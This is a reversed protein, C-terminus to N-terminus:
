MEESYDSSKKVNLAFTTGEKVCGLDYVGDFIFIGLFDVNEPIFTEIRQWKEDRRKAWFVENEDCWCLVQYEDTKALVPCFANKEHRRTLIQQNGADARSLLMLRDGDKICIEKETAFIYSIDTGEYIEGAGSQCLKGERNVYFVTEGVAFPLADSSIEDILEAKNIKTDLKQSFLKKESVFFIRVEGNKTHIFLNEAKFNESVDGMGWRSKVCRIYVVKGSDLVAAIHIGDDDCVADFDICKELLLEAKEFTKCILENSKTIFFYQEGCIINKCIKSM